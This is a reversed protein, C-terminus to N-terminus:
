RNHRKHLCYLSFCTRKVHTGSHASAITHQTNGKQSLLEIIYQQKIPENVRGQIYHGGKQMSGDEFPWFNHLYYSKYLQTLFCRIAIDQSNRTQVVKRNLATVASKLYAQKINWGCQAQCIPGVLYLFQGKHHNQPQSVKSTAPLDYVPYEFWAAGGHLTLSKRGTWYGM